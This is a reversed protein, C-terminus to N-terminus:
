LCTLRRKKFDSLSYPESSHEDELNSETGASTWHARSLCMTMSLPDFLYGHGHRSGELLWWTLPKLIPIQHKGRPAKPSARGQSVSHSQAKLRNRWHSAGKEKMWKLDRRWFNSKVDVKREFMCWPLAEHLTCEYQFVQRVKLVLVRFLVGLWLHRNLSKFPKEEVTLSRLLHSLFFLKIPQHKIDVQSDTSYQHTRKSLVQKLYFPHVFNNFSSFSM